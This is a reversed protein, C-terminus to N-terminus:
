VPESECVLDALPVKQEIDSMAEKASVFNRCALVVTAGRRAMEVATEKGIGTNAGTIVVVKGKVNIEHNPDIKGWVFTRLLYQVLYKLGYYGIVGYFLITLWM